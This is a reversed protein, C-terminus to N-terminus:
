IDIMMRDYRTLLELNFSIKLLRCLAAVLHSVTVLRSAGLRLILTFYLFIHLNDQESLSWRLPYYAAAKSIGNM